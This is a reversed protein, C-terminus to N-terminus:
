SVLLFMSKDILQQKNYNIAIISQMCIVSHVM